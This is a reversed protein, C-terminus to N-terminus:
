SSLDHFNHLLDLIPRRDRGPNLNQRNKILERLMRFGSLNRAYGLLTINLNKLARNIKRFEVYRITSSKKMRSLLSNNLVAANSSFYLPLLSATQPLFAVRKSTQNPAAIRVKGLTKRGVKLNPKNPNVQSM